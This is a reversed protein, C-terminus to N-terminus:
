ASPLEILEATPAAPETWLLVAQPLSFTLVMLTWLLLPAEHELRVPYWVWGTWYAIAAIGLIWRLLRYAQYHARDRQEREREDLPTWERSGLARQLSRSLGLTLPQGDEPGLPFRPEAYAKVPGGPRIGGLLGGLFIMQSLFAPPLRRSRAFGFCTFTLIFSYYLVVLLRRQWVTRLPLGFFSTETIM